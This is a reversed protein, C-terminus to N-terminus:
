GGGPAVGHEALLALFAGEDLVTVGLAQAEDLKSGPDEGAVVFGTSKSVSSTARAGLSEVLDKAERRTLKALAGTFVVKKGALPQEGAPHRAAPETEGLEVRELLADLLESNLPEAFFGTIQEAMRPGVGPVQQLGEDDAERLASLKGFHRALDRAVAVGVEPIGLGYLFRDLDVKAARRIGDVLKGASVAAFGPLPEIQAPQLDFLDPLRRVLGEAVLLKSTEDGLGEVDLADRSAFHVIRGALQAPCGLSNPCVTFPGREVLGTGCSPCEAPMRWAPGREHGPEEIVEIVQPIVDGARQVRVRDGERVDKRAVEERNHLTARAVTVGSLQVPRLLAVPTVVGTRGVSPVIRELRTVEVRPPFKFAFAWRPHRATTGLEDRAALDDLKVVVGDIEFGLDDRRAELEAHYALIEDVTEVRRPLRNVRLGWARLTELVQWQSAPPPGGGTWDAALIDYVAVDLRRAATIQPDLQRLAGAAANRPNAFPERGEEVLRQNLREFDEVNMVVEGRVAVFRPVAAGGKTSVGKAGGRKKGGSKAGDAQPERLRLPVAQITRVNETVGEGRRGDGRTAARVLVGHEYVLEVSAGDLKPEVVYAVAHDDLAKRLREDFRRLAAPDESSDLSLMPAAHELTPFADLPEGGVRQTPSDPSVLEPHEEELAVLERFLRDYEADAIEPADRVYYLYDHHRIQQRLVHIREAAAEREM